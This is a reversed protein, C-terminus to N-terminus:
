TCVNKASEHYHEKSFYNPEFSDVELADLTSTHALMLSKGEEQTLINHSIAAKILDAYHHSTSLQGKKIAAHLKQAAAEAAITNLFAYEVRYIPDEPTTKMYCYQTLRNRLASPKMMHQAIELALKDRPKKLYSGLPFIWFKLFTGLWKIPFNEFFQSLATQAQFLSNQLVWRVYPLDEQSAGHEHYYRLTASSLYLESLVDGLRASLAEKRKLKGGLILMSLDATLALAASIHTLRRYYKKVPNKSFTPLVSGFALVFARAANNLTYGMHSSLVKDFTNLNAPTPEESVLEMETNLYPHCRFAGQGFIILNRTLINAGEVTIAVPIAQYGHGLYNRPGLQISRGGHIDMADNMVTRSIETLHYKTIASAVTPKINKDVASVTMLRTAELLYSNAGVAALKLAVGEFNGIPLKFQKRIRSYASTTRFGVHATATSVAPLSIARGISLCEMLMQWGHGLREAGGIIWDLPIFVDKGETPGNMFAMGLPFHRKGVKVGPHNTPILCLTIGVNKKNSLLHEPDYVHVALGLVTAVPALTIYRKEWTLKIGVVEKNNYMGKCIIGDAQISAADSGANTETLAFCPIEEGRALRPLYHNKQEQTGYHSILEGPGLSNPVMVNIAASLSRTALKTVITSHALTSFGLGDYEKPIVLGLFREKKIYNWVHAPLDHLEHNIEWDNLMSCLTEVQNDVFAQERQSLTPKGMTLLKHWDPNGCFLEKEWWVDGANLAEKETESMPPLSRRVLLFLPHTILQLRLSKICFVCAVAIFLLDILLLVPWSLLHYAHYIILTIATVPVWIKPSTKFYALSFIVALFVVISLLLHMRPEEFSLLREIM